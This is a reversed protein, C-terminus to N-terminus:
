KGGDKVRMGTIPIAVYFVSGKNERSTFWISGGSHDLISKVIYLGLGTGDTHKERANDARFFKTFMKSQQGQPIGCGNDSVVVVFYNEELIKGAFTQGKKVQKCEVKIEGGQTAYNIANVVLNDIIMRFLPEDLMLVINNKLFITKLKIQKKDIILKLEDLVSQVVAGPNKESTQITFAGLEIRSVNLLANVLDIM